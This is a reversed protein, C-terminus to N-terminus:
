FLFLFWALSPSFYFWVLSPSFYFWALSASFDCLSVSFLHVPFSIFPFAQVPISLFSIKLSALTVSTNPHWVFVSGAQSGARLVSSLQSFEGLSPIQLEM